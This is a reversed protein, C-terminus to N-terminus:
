ADLQFAVEREAPDARVLRARVEEGLPLAAGTVTAEVAVEAVVLRGSTQDDDLDVVVGDFTDGVRASLRYAEVLDVIEREYKKARQDSSQMLKPIEPLSQLVWDPVPQGASLAVSAELAWRDVLRRLPATCHAYDAAIAAHQTEPPQEDVFALYGAGRFLTTCANMMAAHAPQTPDLSRVFEPYATQEPWDIHLAKATRRLHALAKDEAPPLTRLIGTRGNIMIDAAAMGTLLSIQANWGEVPLPTRFGLVWDGTSTDIEQEPLNLSVGGRDREAQERLLGVEKLLQLPEAASGDDLQSQVQEYTLQARSRVLARSVTAATPAGAADLEIRWVCSPRVQDPLLSAADESLEPPHLPTRHDPAYLTQGRRRAEVDIPDGATVFAAVDAIAYWVVFGAEAREIFVAQDLDRAGPPDITVFAIETLDQEPLRPNAAARVAAETVEAPFADPVELEARLAALNDVLAAPVEPGVDLHRAPM